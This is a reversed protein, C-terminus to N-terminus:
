LNSSRVDTTAHKSYAEVNKSHPRKFVVLLVFIVVLILAVASLVSVLIIWRNRCSSQNVSVAVSLRGSATLKKPRPKRCGDEALRINVQVRELSACKPSHDDTAVLSQVFDHRMGRLEEQSLLLNVTKLNSACGIVVLTSGPGKFTVESSSLNGVIIETAGGPITLSDPTYTANFTWHGNLCTFAINPRTSEPCPPPGSSFPIPNSPSSTISCQPPYIAPCLSASTSTLICSILDTPRWSLRSGACFDIETSGLDMVKLKIAGLSGLDPMHGTLNTQSAYLYQLVSESNFLSKPLTGTLKASGTVDLYYLGQSSNPHMILKSFYSRYGFITLRVGGISLRDTFDPIELDGKLLTGSILLRVNVTPDRAARINYSNLPIPNISYLFSSPISGSLLANAILNLEVTDIYPASSYNMLVSPLNGSLKNSSFDCLFSQTMSWDVM